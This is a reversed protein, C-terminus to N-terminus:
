DKVEGFNTIVWQVDDDDNCSDLFRELRAYDEKNLDTYDTPIYKIESELIDLKLEKLEDRLKYFYKPMT